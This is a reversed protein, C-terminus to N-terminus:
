KKSEKRIETITKGGKGWNDTPYEEILVLISDAPKGLTKTLLETVGKVLEAKQEPTSSKETMKINVFPM